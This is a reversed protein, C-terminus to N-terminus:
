SAEMPELTPGDDAMDYGHAPCDPNFEHTSGPETAGYHTTHFEEPLLVCECPALGATKIARKLAARHTTFDGDQVHSVYGPAITEAIIVHWRGSDHKFVRIRKM